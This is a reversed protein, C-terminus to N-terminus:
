LFITHRRQWLLDPKAAGELTERDATTLQQRVDRDFLPSEKFRKEESVYDKNPIKDVSGLFYEPKPSNWTASTGFIKALHEERENSGSAFAADKSSKQQSYSVKKHTERQLPDSQQEQKMLHQTMHFRLFCKCCFKMLYKLIKM